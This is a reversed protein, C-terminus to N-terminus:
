ACSAFGAAKLCNGFSRAKVGGAREKAGRDGLEIGRLRRGNIEDNAGHRPDAKLIRVSRIPARIVEQRYLCQLFGRGPTSRCTRWGLLRHCRNESPHSPCRAVVARIEPPRLGAPAAFCLFRSLGFGYSGTREISFARVSGLSQAWAELTRYGKGNVPITMTSLRAGLADIAVAARIFKHTDVGIIIDTSLTESMILPRWAPQSAQRDLPRVIFDREM